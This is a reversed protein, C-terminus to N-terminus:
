KRSLPQTQQTRTGSVQGSQPCLRLEVGTISAPQAPLMLVLTGSGAAGAHAVLTVEGAPLARFAFRGEADAVLRRGLPRAEVDAYAGGIVRGTITRIADLRLAGSVTYGSPLSDGDIRASWEGKPGTLLFRGDSETTAVLDRGGAAVIVRVGGVGLGADSVVRGAIRGGAYALGFDVVDGASAEVRSPTTFYADPQPLHVTVQHRGGGVGSFAYRGRADTRVTRATDLQVEVGAATESGEVAVSGSITASGFRPLDDFSHRLTLEVSTRAPTSFRAVAAELDTTGAIRRSYSLMALRATTTAGVSELRNSFIRLRLRQRAASGDTWALELGAQDRHPTLNVSAGEIIGLTLLSANDRLLRAIDDPSSAEFGLRELALALDPRQQLILQLTPADNQRDIYASASFGGASARGTVRFGRMTGDASHDGFRVVATAGAHAFDLAAGAPVIVSTIRDTAPVRGQFASSRVGGLLSLRRTLQYRLDVSSTLSRQEFRPLLYDNYSVTADSTLRGARTSWAADAYSGRITGPGAIAFDGPQWRLDARVRNREGAASFSIAAGVGRSVGLESSFNIREDPSYAVLLSAVAGRRSRDDQRSPFAYISPMLRWAPAIQRTYSLGAVTERDAPLIVGDYFAAATYGTHLSWGGQRVHVGRVTANNLTLPSNDVREDFLTVNKFQWSISPFADSLSGYREELYRVNMVRLTSAPTFVEVVNTVQAAGSAYRSEVVARRPPPAGAGSPGASAAPTVVLEITRTSEATVLVLMTTGASKGFLTVTGDRLSAEAISGDVTYAASVGAFPLALGNNVRVQLAEAFLAPAALLLAAALLRRM